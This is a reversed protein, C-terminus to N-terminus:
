PREENLDLRAVGAPTLTGNADCQGVLAMQAIVRRCEDLFEQDRRDKLDQPLDNYWQSFNVIEFRGKRRRRLAAIQERDILVCEKGTVMTAVSLGILDYAHEAAEYDSLTRSAANLAFPLAWFLVENPMRMVKSATDTTSGDASADAFKRVSACVVELHQQPASRHLVGM